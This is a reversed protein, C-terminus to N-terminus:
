ATKRVVLLSEDGAIRGGSDKKRGKKVKIGWVLMFLFFM